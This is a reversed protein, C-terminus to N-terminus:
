FVHLGFSYIECTKCVLNEATQSGTMLQMWVVDHDSWCLDHRVQSAPQLKNRPHTLGSHTTFHLRPGPYTQYSYMLTDSLICLDFLYKCITYRALWYYLWHMPFQRMNEKKLNDLSHQLDRTYKHLYHSCWWSDRWFDSDLHGSAAWDAESWPQHGDHYGSVGYLM